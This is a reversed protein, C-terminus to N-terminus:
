TLNWEAALPTADAPTPQPITAVVPSVIREVEPFQALALAVPKTSRVAIANVIWFPRFQKVEGAQQQAALFARLSRQSQDAVQQLRGHVLRGRLSRDAVSNADSLDARDRLLVLYSADAQEDFATLLAPDLREVSPSQAALAAAWVVAVVFVAISRRLTTSRM